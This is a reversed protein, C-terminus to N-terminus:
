VLYMKPGFPYALLFDGEHLDGFLTYATTSLSLKMNKPGSYPLIIPDEMDDFIPVYPISFRM